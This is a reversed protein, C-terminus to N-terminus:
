GHLADFEADAVVEDDADLRVHALLGHLVRVAM